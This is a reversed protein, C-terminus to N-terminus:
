EARAQLLIEPREVLSILALSIAKRSAMLQRRCTESAAKRRQVSKMSFCAAMGGGGRGQGGCRSDTEAAATAAGGGGGGGDDDNDDDDNDDDDDQGGRAATVAFAVAKAKGVGGTDEVVEGVDDGGDDTENSALRHTSQDATM